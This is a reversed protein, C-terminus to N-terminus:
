QEEEDYFSRLASGVEILLDEYGLNDDVDIIIRLERPKAQRQENKEKQQEFKPQKIQALHGGETYGRVAIQGYGGEALDVAEAIMGEPSPRIVQGPRARYKARVVGINDEDLQNSLREALVSPPHPNFPRAVFSFEELNWNQLARRVDGATTDQVIEIEGGDTLVHVLRTVRDIAAKGGLHPAGARDDIALVGLRPLAVFDSYHLSPDVVHSFDLRDLSIDYDVKIRLGIRRGVSWMFITEGGVRKMQPRMLVTDPESMGGAHKRVFAFQGQLEQLIKFQARTDLLEGDVSFNYRCFLFPVGRGM